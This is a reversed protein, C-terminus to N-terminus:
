RKLASPIQPFPKHPDFTWRDLEGVYDCVGTRPSNVFPLMAGTDAANKACVACAFADEWVNIFTAPAGCTNCAEVHPMNRALLCIKEKQPPRSLEDLVTLVIETTSGMDYKYSIKQKPALSAIKTSQNSDFQSLHDCCECWIQRLFKDFTAISTDTAISFLMWYNKAYAGEALILRCSEVGTNHANILHNKMAVKAATEGCM